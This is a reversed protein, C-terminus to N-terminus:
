KIILGRFGQTGLNRGMWAETHSQTKSGGPEAKRSAALKEQTARIWTTQAWLQSPLWTPQHLLIFRYHIPGWSKLKISASGQVRQCTPDLMVWRLTRLPDPPPFHGLIFSLLNLITRNLLLPLCNQLTNRSSAKLPLLKMHSSITVQAQHVGKLSQTYNVWLGPKHPVMPQLPHQSPPLPHQCIARSAMKLLVWNGSLRVGPRTRGM